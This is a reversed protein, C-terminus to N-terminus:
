KWKERIWPIRQLEPDWPDGKGHFFVIRANSPLYPRDKLHSRFSYVGDATGWTREHRGLALAIWAQDSGYFGAKRTERPSFYPDFSNWVAARAGARLLFMSGNYPNGSTSSQWIVFEDDRDWLPTVDGVIVCDLDLCVFKPGLWDAVNEAFLRLRRYCSPNKIGSPNPVDSLDPWLEFVRVAPDHIGSADDTVCNIRVEGAYHRRVMAALVDVHAGRFKSRYGPPPRWLFTVVELM